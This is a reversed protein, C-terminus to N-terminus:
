LNGRSKFNITEYIAPRGRGKIELFIISVYEGLIGLYLIVFGNLLLILLVLTKWGEIVQKKILMSIGIDLLLYLSAMFCIAIGLGWIIRLPRSSFSVIGGVFMNIFMTPTYSSKGYNRKGVEYSMVCSNKSFLRVMGRLFIVNEESNAIADAVPRSILRFDSVRPVLVQGSAYSWIRYGFSQGVRIWWAAHRTQKKQALITDHGKEWLKIMQPIYSPPHQFDADMTIVADGTAHTIGIRLAQQHGSSRYISIGKIKKNKSALNKITDQTGDTSGDNVIIIEYDYNNPINAIIEKTLPIINKEENLCPLVISIKKM